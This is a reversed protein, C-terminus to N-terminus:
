AANLERELRSLGNGCIRLLSRCPTDYNTRRYEARVELDGNFTASASVVMSTGNRAAHWVTPKNANRGVYMLYDGKREVCKVHHLGGDMQLRFNPSEEATRRIIEKAKPLVIPNFKQGSYGPEVSMVVGFDIIGARVMDYFMEDPQESPYFSVGTQVGRDKIKRLTTDPNGSNSLRFSLYDIGEACYREVWKDPEKIMLHVDKKLKTGYANVAEIIPFGFSLNPVDFSDMVDIHLGYALGGEELRRIEEKLELLAYKDLLSVFLQPKPLIIKPM